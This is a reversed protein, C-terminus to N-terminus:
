RCRSERQRIECPYASGTARHAARCTGSSGPHHPIPPRLPFAASRLNTYTQQGVADRPQNGLEIADMEVMAELYLVGHDGPDVPTDGSCSRGGEGNQWQWWSASEHLLHANLHLCGFQGVGGQRRTAPHQLVLGDLGHQQRYNHALVELVHPLLLIIRCSARRRGVM